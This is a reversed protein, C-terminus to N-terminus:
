SIVRTTKNAKRKVGERSQRSKMRIAKGFYIYIASKMLGDNRNRKGEKQCQWDLTSTTINRLLTASIYDGWGFFCSAIERNQGGRRQYLDRTLCPMVVVFLNRDINVSHGTGFLSTAQMLGAGFASLWGGGWGGFSSFRRM